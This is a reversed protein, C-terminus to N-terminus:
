LYYLFLNILFFISNGVWETFYEVLLKEIFIFNIKFTLHGPYRLVNILHIIKKIKFCYTNAVYISCINIYIYLEEICIIFKVLLFLTVFAKQPSLCLFVLNTVQIIFVSLCLLSLSPCFLNFRLMRYSLIWKPSRDLPLKLSLTLLPPCGRGRVSFWVLSGAKANFFFRRLIFQSARSSPCGKVSFQLPNPYPNSKGKERRWSM